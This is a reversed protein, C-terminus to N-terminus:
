ITKDVFLCWDGNDDYEAVLKGKQLTKPFYNPFIERLRGICRIDWNQVVEWAFDAYEKFTEYSHAKKPRGSLCKDLLITALINVDHGGIITSYLERGIHEKVKDYKM